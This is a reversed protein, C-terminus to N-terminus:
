AAAEKEVEDATLEGTFAKQLLSQKLEKLTALKKTLPKELEIRQRTAEELSAVIAEQKELPPVLIPLERVAKCTLHPVTSGSRIREFSRKMEPTQFYASLYVGSLKQKITTIVIMAHCNHGEHESPVVASHGIHGSQVLLVDDKLLKSKRNRENFENSIFTLGDFTLINNKVHRALLYPIGKKVYINRTPGVYGNTLRTVGEKLRMEEWDPGKQTFINNLYSDFLERANALNRETNAIAQDIGEFARDLIEVIRKQEALNRPILIPFSQLQGKTIAQRTSGGEEGIGLLREKYQRSLLLYCLFEPILAEHKPRLISVHQNVRAPLVDSPVLCCRAISAGTINLLVDGQEVTVNNLKGAQEADLFALKRRFFRGDHVNLSRILSIGEDKYSKAGGKPTAGSGIKSTVDGLKRIQWNKNM